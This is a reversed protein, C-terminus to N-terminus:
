AAREIRGYIRANKRQWKWIDLAQQMALWSEPYRECKFARM